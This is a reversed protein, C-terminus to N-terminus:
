WDPWDRQRIDSQGRTREYVRLGGDALALTTCRTGYGPLDIWILPDSFLDLWAEPSQAPSTRVLELARAVRPSPRELTDNGLGYTGAPLTQPPHRSSLYTLHSGAGLLLNFGAFHHRPISDARLQGTLFGQVLCGRSPAGAPVPGPINTLVAWRRQPGFGLWAGGGLLDRGALVPQDPWFDLRAAPRDLYEDRNSLLLFPESRVVVTCMALAEGDGHWNSAFAPRSM